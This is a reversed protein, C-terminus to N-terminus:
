LFMCISIRYIGIQAAAMHVEPIIPSGNAVVDDFRAVDFVHYLRQFKTELQKPTAIHRYIHSKNPQFQLPFVGCNPKVECDCRIVNQFNLSSVRLGVGATRM